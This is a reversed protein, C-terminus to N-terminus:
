WIMILNEEMRRFMENDAHSSIRNFRLFLNVEFKNEQWLREVKFCNPASYTPGLRRSPNHLPKEKESHLIGSYKATKSFRIGKKSVGCLYVM